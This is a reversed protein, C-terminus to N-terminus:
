MTERGRLILYDHFEQSWRVPGLSREDADSAREAIRRRYTQLSLALYSINVPLPWRTFKVRWLSIYARRGGRWYRLLLVCLRPMM